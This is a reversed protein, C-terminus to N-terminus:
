GRGKSEPFCEKRQRPKRLILASKCFDCAKLCTQPEPPGVRVSIHRYRNLKCICLLTHPVRLNVTIIVKVIFVFIYVISVSVFIALCTIVSTLTVQNQTLYIVVSSIVSVITVNYICVGILGSDNLQEIKVNRHDLFFIMKEDSIVDFVSIHRLIKSGGCGKYYFRNKSRIYRLFFCSIIHQNM